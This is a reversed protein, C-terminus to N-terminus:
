YETKRVNKLWEQHKEHTTIRDGNDDAHKVIIPDTPYDTHLRGLAIVFKREEPTIDRLTFFYSNNKADPYKVSNELPDLFIGFHANPNYYYSFIDMCYYRSDTYYISQSFYPTLMSNYDGKIDRLINALTTKNMDDMALHQLDNGEIEFQFFNPTEAVLKPLGEPRKYVMETLFDLNDKPTMGPIEHGIFEVMQDYAPKRIHVGNITEKAVNAIDDDLYYALWPKYYYAYGGHVFFQDQLGWFVETPFCKFEKRCVQLAEKRHWGSQKIPM